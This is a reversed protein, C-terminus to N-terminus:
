CSTRGATIPTLRASPFPTRDVSGSVGRKKGAREEWQGLPGKSNLVSVGTRWAETTRVTAVDLKHWGRQKRRSSAYVGELFKLNTWWPSSSTSSDDLNECPSALAPGHAKKPSFSTSESNLEKAWAMLLFYEPCSNITRPTRLWLTTTTASKIRFIRPTSRM